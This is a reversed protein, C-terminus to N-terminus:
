PTDGNGGNWSDLVHRLSEQEAKEVVACRKWAIPEIRSEVARLWRAARHREFDTTAPDQNM